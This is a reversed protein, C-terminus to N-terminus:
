GRMHPAYKMISTHNATRLPEDRMHPAYMEHDGGLNEVFPEDGCTRPMSRSIM